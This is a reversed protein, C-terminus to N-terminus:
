RLIVKCNKIEEYRCLREYDAEKLLVRKNQDLLYISPLRQIDYLRSSSIENDVDFGVYWNKSVLTKVM